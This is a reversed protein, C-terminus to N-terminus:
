AVEVLDLEQHDRHNVVSRIGLPGPRIMKGLRDTVDWIRDKELLDATRPVIMRMREVVKTENPGVLENEITTWLWCPLADLKTEWQLLGPTPVPEPNGWDDVPALPGPGGATDTLQQVRARMTMRSRASM